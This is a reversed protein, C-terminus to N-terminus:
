VGTQTIFLVSPSVYQSEYIKKIHDYKNIILYNYMSHWKIYTM